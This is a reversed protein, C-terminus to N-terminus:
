RGGATYGAGPYSFFSTVTFPLVQTFNWLPYATAISNCSNSDFGLYPITPLCLLATRPVKRLVDVAVDMNHRATTDVNADARM